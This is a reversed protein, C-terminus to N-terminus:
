SSVLPLVRNSSQHSHNSSSKKFKGLKGFLNKKNKKQKKNTQGQEPRNNHTKTTTKTAQKPTTTEYEEDLRHFQDMLKVAKGFPVGLYDIIDEKTIEGRNFRYICMGDFEADEFAQCTAQNFGNTRLWSLVHEVKWKKYHTTPISLSPSSESKIQNLEDKLKMIENDRQMLYSVLNQPLQLSQNPQQFQKQLSDEETYEHDNEYTMQQENQFNKIKEESYIGASTNARTYQPKHRYQTKGQDSNSKSQTPMLSPVTYGWNLQPHPRSHTATRNHHNHQAIQEKETTAEAEDYQEEERTSADDETNENHAESVQSATSDPFEFEKSKTPTTDKENQMESIQKFTKDSLDSAQSKTQKTNKEHESYQQIALSVKELNSEIQRKLNEENFNSKNDIATYVSVNSSKGKLEMGGRVRKIHYDRLLKANLKHYVHEEFLVFYETNRSYGELRSAVNVADGIITWDLKMESGMNGEIVEGQSVGIGAYLNAYMISEDINTGAIFHDSHHKGYYRRLKRLDQLIDMSARVANDASEDDSGDWYAMVCDGIYKSVIGGYKQVSKSVISFFKNVLNVVNIAPLKESFTTFSHIDTFLVVKNLRDVKLDLPNHGDRIFQFLNPQTYRELVRHSETVTGLLTKIPDLVISSTKDLNIEEMSWEIFKREFIPRETKLVLIDFHRQDKEIKAYLSDLTKEEGEIVQFFVGKLNLLVGSVNLSKNTAQAKKVIDSIEEDSLTDPDFRSIYTIRKEVM